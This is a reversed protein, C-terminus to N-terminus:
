ELWSITLKASGDFDPYYYMTYYGTDGDPDVYSYEAEQSADGSLLDNVLEQPIETYSLRLCQVGSNKNLFPTSALRKNCEGYYKNFKEVMDKPATGKEAILDYHFSRGYVYPESFSNIGFDVSFGDKEIYYSSDFSDQEFSDWDSFLDRFRQEGDRDDDYNQESTGTEAEINSSEPAETQEEAKDSSSCATMCLMLSIALLMLSMPKLLMKLVSKEKKNM